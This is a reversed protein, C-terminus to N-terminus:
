RNLAVLAHLKFGYYTEKKSACREYDFSKHFHTRGFKCVPIPMSYAIRILDYQYNLFEMFEKRIADTIRFLSKRVRYFRTRSCSNPFLNRLNKSCFWAKESGITVLEDILPLTIIESNSM